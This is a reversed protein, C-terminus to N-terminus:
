YVDRTKRKICFTCLTTFSESVSRLEVVQLDRIRYVVAATVLGTSSSDTNLIINQGCCSIWRFLFTM